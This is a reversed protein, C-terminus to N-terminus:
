ISIVWEVTGSSRGLSVEVNTHVFSFDPDRGLLRSKSRYEWKLGIAWHDVWPM